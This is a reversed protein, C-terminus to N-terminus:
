YTMPKEYSFDAPCRYLCHKREPFIRYFFTGPVRDKGRHLTLLPFTVDHRRKTEGGAASDIILNRMAPEENDPWKVLTLSIKKLNLDKEIYNNEITAIKITWKNRFESTVISLWTTKLFHEDSWVLATSQDIYHTHCCLLKTSPVNLIICRKTFLKTVRYGTHIM